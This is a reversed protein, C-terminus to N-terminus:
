PKTEEIFTVAATLSRCAPCQPDRKTRDRNGRFGPCAGDDPVTWHYKHPTELTGVDILEIILGRAEDLMEQTTRSM